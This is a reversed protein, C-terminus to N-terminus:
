NKKRKKVIIIAVIAGAVVLVGGVIGIVIWLMDPGVWKKTILYKKNNTGESGEEVLVEQTTIKDPFAIPDGEVYTNNRDGYTNPDVKFGREAVFIEVMDLELTGKTGKIVLYADKSSGSNFSFNVRNWKGDAKMPLKGTEGNKVNEFVTYEGDSYLGVTIDSGKSLKTWAAFTYNKNLKSLPIVRVYEKGNSAAADFKFGYNGQWDYEKNTVKEVSAGDTLPGWNQDTVEEEFNSNTVENFFKETYKLNEFDPTREVVEVRDIYIDDISAGENRNAHFKCIQFAFGNRDTHDKTVTGLLYKYWGDKQELATAKHPKINTSVGIYAYEGSQLMDSQDRTNAGLFAYYMQSEAPETSKVWVYVDYTYDDKMQFEKNSVVPFFISTEISEMIKGPKVHLSQNGELVNKPDNVIEYYEFGIDGLEYDEFGQTIVTGPKAKGSFRAELKHNDSVDNLRYTKNTSVLDGYEYWGEFTAGEFANAVVRADDGAQVGFSKTVTGLTADNLSTEISYQETLTFNDFWMTRPESSDNVDYIVLKFYQANPVVEGTTLTFTVTNWGRTGINNIFSWQTDSGMGLNKKDYGFAAAYDTFPTEVYYDLSVKYTTNSKMKIGKFVYTQNSNKSTNTYETANVVKFTGGKESSHEFVAEAQKFYPYISDDKEDFTIKTVEKNTDVETEEVTFDDFFVWANANLNIEFWDAAHNTINGTSFLVKVETWGETSNKKFWNVNNAKGLVSEIFKINFLNLEGSATPNAQYYKFILKYTKNSELTLPSKEGGLTISAGDKDAKGKLIAIELGSLNTSPVYDPDIKNPLKVVKAGSSEKGENTEDFKVTAVEINGDFVRFNDLYGKFGAGVYLTHYALNAGTFTFNISQTAWENLKDSTNWWKQGTIGGGTNNIGVYCHGGTSESLAYNDFKLTYTKGPTLSMQPVQLLNFWIQGSQITNNSNDIYIAYNPESPKVTTSTKEKELKLYNNYDDKKITLGSFNTETGEVVKGTDDLLKFNDIYGKFGGYVYLVHNGTKAADSITIKSTTNQWENLVLDPKWWSGTNSGSGSSTRYHFLNSSNPMKIPYVDFSVTYTKGSQLKNYYGPMGLENFWFNRNDSGNDSVKTTDILMVYNDEAPVTVTGNQNAKAPLEVVKNITKSTKGLDAETVIFNVVEAGTAKNVIKFNDFYGKIGAGVYFWPYAANQTTTFDFSITSWADIKDPLNIWKQSLADGNWNPNTIQIPFNTDGIKLAYFDFSLTYTGAPFNISPMGVEHLYLQGYGTGNSNDVLVAYDPGAPTTVSGSIDIDPIDGVTIKAFECTTRGVYSAFDLETGDQTLEVNWIYLEDAGDREAIWFSPSNASLEFSNVGAQLYGAESADSSGYVKIRGSKLYYDFKITAKYAKSSDYSTRFAEGSDFTMKYAPATLDVASGSGSGSNGSNNDPEEYNAGPIDAFSIEEFECTTRDTRNAVKASNGDTVIKVNWIYIVANETATLKLSKTNKDGTFTHSGVGPTLETDLNGVNASGATVKGKSLYYDFSYTIKDNCPTDSTRFIEDKDMTLKYAPYTKAVIEKPLEVIKAGNSTRNLYTEDIDFSFIVDGSGDKVKFNDLYGKFASNGESIIHFYVGALNETTTIQFSYHTWENLKTPAENWVQGNPIAHDTNMHAKVGNFVVRHGLTLSYVDFEVTYTNGKPLSLGQMGLETLWFSNSSSNDFYAVYDPEGNFSPGTPKMSSGALQALTGYAFVGGGSYSGCATALDLTVKKGDEGIISFDEILASASTFASFDLKNSGEKATFTFHFNTWEEASANDNTAFAEVSAENGGYVKIGFMKGDSAKSLGMAYIDMDVTYKKGAQLQLGNVTLTVTEETANSAYFYLKDANDQGGITFHDNGAVIDGANEGQFDIIDGEAASTNMFLMSLPLSAALIMVACVISIIKKFKTNLTFHM